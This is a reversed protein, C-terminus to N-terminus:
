PLHRQWGLQYCLDILEKIRVWAADDGAHYYRTLVDIRERIVRIVENIDKAEDQLTTSM